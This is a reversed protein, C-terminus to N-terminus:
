KGNAADRSVPEDANNLGLRHRREAAELMEGSAHERLLTMSGNEIREEIAAMFAEMTLGPPIPELYQVAGTVGINKRWCRQPWIVGLSVAAPVAEVGMGKYMHYVGRKYRERAGLKMLEGEPYIVMSRGQEAMRKGGAIAQETRGQPGSDVAILVVDLTKLIKGFFPLKTLEEMAVASIDFFVHALMVIDLESQHKSVILQPRTPDLHEQGRVEIRALLLIRVMWVVVWGWFKLWYWVIHRGGLLCLLWAVLAVFFTFAYFLINFITSLVWALM